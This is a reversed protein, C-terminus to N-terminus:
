LAHTSDADRGTERSEGSKILTHTFTVTKGWPEEQHPPLSSMTGRDGGGGEARLITQNDLFFSHVSVEPIPSKDCPHLSAEQSGRWSFM